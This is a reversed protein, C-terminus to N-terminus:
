TSFASAFLNLALYVFSVNIIAMKAFCLLGRLYQSCLFDTLALFRFFCGRELKLSICAMINIVIM